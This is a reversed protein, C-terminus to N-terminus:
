RWRDGRKSISASAIRFGQDTGERSKGELLNLVTAEEVESCPYALNCSYAREPLNM